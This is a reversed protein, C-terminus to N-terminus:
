FIARISARGTNIVPNSSPKRGEYQLNVEINGALRKTFELNWTYNKGPELGDLLLFGVPSNANGTFSINSFTIRGNIVSSSFVNYKLESTLSSTKSKEFDGLHNEKQDYGYLISLRFQTNHVYSLSPEVSLEHVDYNRIQFSPVSLQRRILENLIALNISRSINYRVRTSLNRMSNGELGYSLISKSTNIRHTVDVGFGTGMRNFYLSNSMFSSLLILSTDNLGGSFPNFTFKGQSVEKKNIQLASATSFKKMFGGFGKRNPKGLRGPDFTIGYNFQIYNAKIYENTPTLIRVWRKQDQFVAVEFEDLQPIGDKNYDIWQYYGQGAPVEVYTFQQKQEQGAGLEYFATGTIAGKMENFMYDIRGLLSQDDNQNLFPKFRNNVKLKRYTVNMRLQRHTNGTFETSLSINNSQDSSTLNSGSPLMNMRNFYILSWRRKKGPDSSLGFQWLSFGQSVPSLTDYQKLLQQNNEAQYLASIKYNHFNILQKSVSFYPKWYKGNVLNSNVTTYDIKNNLLWGDKSYVSEISNRIGNFDIDRKYNSFEYKILPSNMKVLGISANFLKENAQPVIINLGWDRYFEVSRLNEVSKFKDDVSEYDIHSVLKLPSRISDKLFKQNEIEIKWAYGKNENNDKDSFTNPDYNSMAGSFSVYTGRNLQYRASTSIIQHKKPTVLLVVPDWDGSPQGNQPAVWQFVKGNANGETSIYNGKGTGVNTFSLQFLSDTRSTSYVYVTGSFGNVTTDVKKYLIKDVSFTDPVAGPYLASDMNNGITSLYRIQQDSLTQNIPSNKADNNSYASFSLSLKNKLKFQDRFYLMSNLYNRDGYEFEVQIRSDKTILRKATFTIEATNYDIVYDRDEGRQMLQGDIYVKETGALVAFYLEGNGGYLKYPGQNGDTPTLINRTFKGRAIAGSATFSNQNGNKFNNNATFSAGQLRKYFNLFRDEQARLDIDGFNAQWGKKGIQMFIRDFDQLNQTNGEPQIPINNDSIAASFRLSDGLWGNLQLNLVSNVVADQNNGFSIGRGISGNYNMQGFNIIRDQNSSGSYIMPKEATFNFRISDYNFRQVSQNIKFPFIRYSVIITDTPISDLFLIGNVYDVHFKEKTLSLLEVSNPIISFSDLIIEKRDPLIKKSRLNSLSDALQQAYGCYSLFLYLILLQIKPAM